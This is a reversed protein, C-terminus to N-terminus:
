SRTDLFPRQPYNVSGTGEINGVVIIRENDSEHFPTEHDLWGPFIIGTGSTPKYYFGPKNPFYIPASNEDVKVYYVWSYLAPVHSHRESHDGRNYISGWCTTMFTVLELDTKETHWDEVTKAAKKAILEFPRYELMNWKTMTAKVNTKRNQGDGVDKIINEVQSHLESVTYEENDSMSFEWFHIPVEMWKIHEVFDKDM